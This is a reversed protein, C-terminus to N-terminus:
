PMEGWERQRAWAQGTFPPLWSLGQMRQSFCVPNPTCGLPGSLPQTDLVATFLALM